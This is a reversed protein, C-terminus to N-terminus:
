LVRGHGEFSLHTGAAGPSQFAPGAEFYEVPRHKAALNGELAFGWPKEKRYKASDGPNM